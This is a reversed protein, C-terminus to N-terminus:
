GQGQEASKERPGPYDKATSADNRGMHYGLTEVYSRQLNRRYLDVQVNPASLESLIGNRLDTLLDFPSYSGTTSRNSQEAMRKIRQDNLLTSILGRQSALIRDAAGSSELRLLINSDILYPPVQFAHKVLFGVAEKQKETPVPDFIRDSQGFWLNNMVVGGV